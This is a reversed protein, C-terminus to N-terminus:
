LPMPSLFLTPMCWGSERWQCGLARLGGPVWEGVHRAVVPWLLWLLSPVAAGVQDRTTARHWRAQVVFQRHAQHRATRLSQTFAVPLSIGRTTAWLHTMSALMSLDYFCAYASTNLSHFRRPWQLLMTWAMSVVYPDYLVYFCLECCPWFCVGAGAGFCWVSLSADFM